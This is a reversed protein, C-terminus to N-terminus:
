TFYILVSIIIMIIGVIQSEYKDLGSFNVKTIGNLVVYVILITMSVSIMTYIASVLSIGKWGYMGASLFYSELEICPTLFSATALTFVLAYFNKGLNPKYDKIEDHHHCHGFNYKHGLKHLVECFIYYLGIIFLISSAIIKANSEFSSAIKFGLFGVGFGILVTSLIHFFSIISTAVLAQTTTWKETKAITIIQLWHNPILVHVSGLLISGILIGTLGNPM